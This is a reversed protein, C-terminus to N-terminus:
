HTGLCVGDCPYLGATGCGDQFACENGRYECYFGDGCWDSLHTCECGPAIADEAVGVFIPEPGLTSVLLTAVDEPFAARALANVHEAEEVPTNLPEFVDPDSILAHFRDVARLQPGTLVPHTNRFHDIHAVWFKSKGMTSLDSYIARRYIMPYRTIEDYTEPLTDRNTEVWERAAGCIQQAMPPASGSLLMGAAISAGSALRLFNDGSVAGPPEEPCGNADRRLQGLARFVRMVSRPGLRRILPPGMRMGTWARARGNHVRLLTPRWPLREGLAQERWWQVEPRTLPLVELRHESAGAVASSIAQCTGCSADFALVWRAKSRM